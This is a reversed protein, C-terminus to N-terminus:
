IMVRSPFYVVLPNLINAWNPLPMTWKKAIDRHALYLLKQASENTPFVAKNKTV